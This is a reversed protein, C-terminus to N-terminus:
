KAIDSPSLLTAAVSVGAMVHCAFESEERALLNCCVPHSTFVPGKSNRAVRKGHTNPCRIEKQRLITAYFFLLGSGVYFNDINPGTRLFSDRMGFHTGFFYTTGCKVGVCM